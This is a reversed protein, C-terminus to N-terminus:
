TVFVDSNSMRWKALCHARTENKVRTWNRDRCTPQFKEIRVCLIFITLGLPGLAVRVKLSNLLSNNQIKM